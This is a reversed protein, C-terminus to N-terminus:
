LCSFIHLYLYNKSFDEFIKLTCDRKFSFFFFFAPHWYSVGTIRAVWSASILLMETPLWALCVTRHSGKELFGMVFFFTPLTTWPTPGLNLGWYQLYIL